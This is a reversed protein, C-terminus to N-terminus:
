RGTRPRRSGGGSGGGGLLLPLREEGEALSLILVYTATNWCPGVQADTNNRMMQSEQTPTSAFSGDPKRAQMVHLRFADMYARWPRDGLLRSAMAGALLHMAPSVHGNPLEEMHGQFSDVMRGFFAHRSQGVAAFAVIAGATRGPDGFRQGDRQSYGVGGDGPSTGVIWELARAVGDTDVELELSRAAGLGALLYNGVIELELYGLANPGGPGHAWGGSEEQNREIRVVLEQCKALVDQRRTRRAMEALFMLGYGLEWNEQNWNGGGMGGAGMGGMTRDPQGVHRLVYELARGLPGDRDPSAGAALFALGGLSTVVVKGTQGGLDTPFSGDSAQQSALFELGSRVIQECKDCRSPCSRSHDGLRQVPVELELQRGGRSVTLTVPTRRRAGECREVAAVVALAPARADLADGGVGLIRDGERLGAQQAPGEYVRRVTLQAGDAEVGVGLAGLNVYDEPPSGPFQALAPFCPVVLLLVAPLVPLKMDGIRAM